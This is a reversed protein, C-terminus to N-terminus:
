GGESKRGAPRLRNGGLGHWCAESGCVRGLASWSVKEGWVHLIVFLQWVFLSFCVDKQSVALLNCCSSALSTIKYNNLFVASCLSKHSFLAVCPYFLLVNVTVNTKNKYLFALDALRNCIQVFGLCFFLLYFDGSRHPFLWHYKNNGSSSTTEPWNDYAFHEWSLTYRCSINEVIFFVAFLWAGLPHM